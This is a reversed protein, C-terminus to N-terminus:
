RARAHRRARSRRSSKSSRSSRSSRSKRSSRSSRFRSSGGAAFRRVDYRVVKGRQITDLSAEAGDVTFVLARDAFAGDLRNLQAVIDQLSTLVSVNLTHEEYPGQFTIRVAPKRTYRFTTGADADLFERTSDKPIRYYNSTFFAIDAPSKIDDRTNLENVIDQQTMENTVRVNHPSGAGQIRMFGVDHGVIRAYYVIADADSDLIARVDGQAVKQLGRKSRIQFRMGLSPVKDLADLTATISQHTSHPKLLLTHTKGSTFSKFTKYLGRIYYVPGATSLIESMDGDAVKHGDIVFTPVMHKPPDVLGDRANLITVLSAQTTAASVPVAHATFLTPSRFVVTHEM